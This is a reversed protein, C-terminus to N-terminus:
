SLHRLHLYTLFDGVKFTASLLRVFYLLKFQRLFVMQTQTNNLVYDLRDDFM